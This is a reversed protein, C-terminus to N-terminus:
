VEGRVTGLASWAVEPLMLVKCEAQNGLAERIRVTCGACITIVTHSEISAVLQEKQRTRYCCLRHNLQHLHLGEIGSLVSLPSELDPTGHSVKGYFDYCGAYYDAHLELRGSHWLQALLTPYWVVDFPILGKFRNHVMNCGHCFTIIKRAGLERVQHLNNELFARALGDVEVMEAADKDRLAQQFLPAGCCYEQPLLSYDVEFYGLLRGLSRMAEPVLFPLYCSALLAYEAKGASRLGLQETLLRWREKSKAEGQIIGCSRINAVMTEDLM